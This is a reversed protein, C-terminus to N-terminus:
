DFIIQFGNRKHVLQSEYAYYYEEDDETASEDISENSWGIIRIRYRITGDPSDSIRKELIGAWTIEHQEGNTGHTTYHLVISGINSDLKHIFKREIFCLIKYVIATGIIWGVLIILYIQYKEM